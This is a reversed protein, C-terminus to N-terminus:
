VDLGLLETVGADLQAAIGQKELKDRILRRARQFGMDSVDTSSAAEEARKALEVLHCHTEQTPDYTPISLRWVYTHFHRAGFLGRSQLHSVARTTAPANLIAM